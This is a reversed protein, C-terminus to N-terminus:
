LALYPRQSCFNGSEPWTPNAANAARSPERRLGRGAGMALALWRGRRWCCPPTRM